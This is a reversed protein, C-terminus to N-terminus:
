RRGPRVPPEVLRQPAALLQRHCSAFRALVADNDIAQEVVGTDRVAHALLAADGASPMPM